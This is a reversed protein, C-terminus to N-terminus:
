GPGPEMGSVIVVLRELAVLYGSLGFGAVVGVCAGAVLDTQRFWERAAPNTLHVEVAPLGVAALADRIAVSSHSYGGPNIIIGDAFDKAGQVWTVLEGESNSQRAEVSVGLVGARASLAAEVDNLTARGYLDPERTGLLNLNPGNLVLVKM